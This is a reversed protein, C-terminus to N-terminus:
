RPKSLGVTYAQSPGVSALQCGLGDVATDGLVRVRGM